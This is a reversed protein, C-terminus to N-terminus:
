PRLNKDGATIGNIQLLEKQSRASISTSEIWTQPECRGEVARVESLAKKAAEALRWRQPNASIFTFDTM